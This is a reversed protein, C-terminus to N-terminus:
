PGAANLIALLKRGFVIAGVTAATLSAVLVAGAAVDLAPWGRSRTEPDLSHFLTEVASNFLEAVMVLGIAFLLLCWEIPGCGLAIATALVLATCFFHVSFSSHGRVGLKVGRFAAQFKQRWSLRPKSGLRPETVDDTLSPPM